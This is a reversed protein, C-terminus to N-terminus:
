PGKRKITRPKRSFVTILKATGKTPLSFVIVLWKGDPEYGEIHYIWESYVKDWEPKEFIWGNELIISTTDGFSVNESSLKEKFHATQRLYGDLACMFVETRAERPSLEDGNM